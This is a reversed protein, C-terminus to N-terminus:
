AVPQTEGAPSEEEARGAQSLAERVDRMPQSSRVDPLVDFNHVPPPSLTLWELTDGRWPDPTAPAGQSRSQILNGLTLVLGLFFILTGISAILNYISVDDSGFFRYADTVQGEVGAAFLPVLAILTGAFMIQFSIRARDENLERGTIKPFWYSLAALGGFVAFGVFAFHTAAWADYTQQLQSGVGITSQSVEVLLGISALSLAGMAYRLPARMNFDASSVASILNWYILGFPVILSISMLMGFYKWGSPLPATIMNQTWALTGIVAIAALSAIVVRRGPLLRRTFTQVIESIAGLSTIAVIMYAATFFLYSLHQWLLPAGGVGGGFFGGGAQRDILLMTLAALFVPAVLVFLWAVISATWVFIPARRWAMGPARLNRVTVLLDIALILLGLTILGTAAIWVDVGNNSTYLVQSLPPLPNIGAEPPTFLFSAYLVFGGLVFLWLGTQGVKPLASSRSGIQLPVVYYLLAFCLPLAFLFIATTGYVSLLRDFTVASLFVNEPVALQLRVLVLEVTALFLSGFAATMLIMAMVKHDASTALQVWRPRSDQVPAGALEPRTPPM